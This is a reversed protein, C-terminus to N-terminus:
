HSRAPCVTIIDDFFKLPAADLEMLLRTGGFGMKVGIRTGFLQLAGQMLFGAPIQMAPELEDITIDQSAFSM